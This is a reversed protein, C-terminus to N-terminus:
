STTGHHARRLQERLLARARHLRSRVTGVSIDLVRAISEYDFGDIERLILVSRFEESLGNLALQIQEVRESRLLHEAPPDHPDPPDTGPNVAQQISIEPRYRRRRSNAVNFAIRYLWTYFTSQHRFSDLKLLAQVFADQAIDEAEERQGVYHVLSTFLRDQYQRVLQGFAAYDGQVAQEILKAENLV